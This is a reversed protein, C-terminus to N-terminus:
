SSVKVNVTFARGAPNEPSEWPRRYEFRIVAAGPKEAKFAWVHSRGAGPGRSTEDFSEGTLRSVPQGDAVPKWKYGTLPEELRVEFSDGIALSVNPDTKETLEIM